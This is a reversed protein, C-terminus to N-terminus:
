KATCTAGHVQEECPGLGLDACKYTAWHGDLCAQLATGTCRNFEDRCEDGAPVCEGDRCAKNILRTSCDQRSEQEVACTIAVPGECRPEFEATDCSEPQNGVCRGEDCAMGAAACDSLVIVGEYCTLLDDGECRRQFGADCTGTTCAAEWAAEHKVACSLGAAGCDYTYVRKDLLDCTVAKNGDCYAEFSQDCSGAAPHSGFCAYATTCDGGAANVCRFLQDYIQQLGM